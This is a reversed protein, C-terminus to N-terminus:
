KDIKQLKLQNKKKISLEKEEEFKKQDEDLETELDTKLSTPEVALAKALDLRGSQVKIKPPEVTDAHVYLHEVVKQPSLDPFKKMILAVAGTALPAAMSTGSLMRYANDGSCSASIIRTGPATIQVSQKGYYSFNALEGDKRTAAVAIAHPLPFGAPYSHFLDKNCEQPDQNKRLNGAASVVVVPPAFRSPKYSVEEGAENTTFLEYPNSLARKLRELNKTSFEGSNDQTGGWSCNIVQAGRERAHKICELARDVIGENQDPELMKCILLETIGPMSAAGRITAATITHTEFNHPPTQSREEVQNVLHPLGAIIGAVHTGHGTDDQPLEKKSPNSACANYGYFLEGAEDERRIINNAFAQHSDRIGTDLVAVRIPMGTAPIAPFESNFLNAPPNIGFPPNFHWPEPLEANAQQPFKSSAPSLLTAPFCDAALKKDEITKKIQTFLNLRTQSDQSSAAPQFNLRYLLCNPEVVEISLNNDPFDEKLKEVLTAPREGRKLEIMLYEAAMKAETVIHGNPDIRKEIRLLPGIFRRKYISKVIKTGDSQPEEQTELYRSAETPYNRKWMEMAERLSSLHQEEEQIRTELISIKKEFEQAMVADGRIYAEESRQSQRQIAEFKRAISDWTAGIENREKQDEIREQELAKMRKEEAFKQVTQSKGINWEKIKEQLLDAMEKSVKEWAPAKYNNVASQAHAQAEGALQLAHKYFSISASYELQRFAAQAQQAKEHAAAKLQEAKERFKKSQKASLNISPKSKRKAVLDSYRSQFFKENEIFQSITRSIDEGKKELSQPSLLNSFLNKIESTYHLIKEEDSSHFKLPHSDLLIDSEARGKLSFQKLSSELPLFGPCSQVLKGLLEQAMQAEQAAQLSVKSFKFIEKTKNEALEEPIALAQERVQRWYEVADRTEELLNIKDEFSITSADNQIWQQMEKWTQQAEQAAIIQRSLQNVDFIEPINKVEESTGEKIEPMTAAREEESAQDDTRERFLEEEQTTREQESDSKEMPWGQLSSLLSFSLVILFRFKKNEM